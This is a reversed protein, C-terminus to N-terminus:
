APLGTVQQEWLLRSAQEVSAIPEWTRPAFVLTELWQLGSVSAEVREVPAFVLTELVRLVFLPVEVEQVQESV